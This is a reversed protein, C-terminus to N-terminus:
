SNKLDNASQMIENFENTMAEITVKGDKRLFDKLAKYQKEGLMVKIMKPAKQVNGEDIESLTELYEWDDLNMEDFEFRFGNKTKGKIM